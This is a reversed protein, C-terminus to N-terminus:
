LRWSTPPSGMRALNEAINRGVGGPTTVAAGPNLDAAGGARASHAKIDMNAGGVVVVSRRDPQLM